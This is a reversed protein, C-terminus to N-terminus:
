KALQSKKTRDIEAIKEIYIRKKYTVFATVATVALAGLTLIPFIQFLRCIILGTISLGAFWYTTKKYADMNVAEYIHKQEPHLVANMELISQQHNNSMISGAIISIVIIIDISYIYIASLLLNNICIFDNM